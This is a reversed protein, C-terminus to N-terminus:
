TNMTQITADFVSPDVSVNQVEVKILDGPATTIGFATNTSFDVPQYFTTQSLRVVLLVTANKYIVFKGVTDGSVYIKQLYVLNGAPILYQAVIKTETPNVSQTGYTAVTAGVPVSTIQGSMVNVDLARKAGDVTSTILGTGDSLAINDGDGADVEVNVDISGDANIKLKHGTNNDALYVGDNDPSLEVTLEAINATIKTDIALRKIGDDDIVSVPLGTKPDVLSIGQTAGRANHQTGSSKNKTGM